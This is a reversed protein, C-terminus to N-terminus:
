FGVNVSFTFSRSRPTQSSDFCPSWGSQSHEPDVGSYRSWFILNNGSLAFRLSRLGYRKLKKSDFDYATQSYVFKLRINDISAIGSPLALPRNYPAITSFSGDLGRNFIPTQAPASM